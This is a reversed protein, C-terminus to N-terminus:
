FFPRSFQSDSYPKILASYVKVSVLATTIFPRVAQVPIKILPSKAPDIRTDPNRPKDVLCLTAPDISDITAYSERAYSNFPENFPGMHTRSKM